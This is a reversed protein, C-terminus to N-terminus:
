NRCFHSKILFSILPDLKDGDNVIFEGLSARPGSFAPATKTVGLGPQYIVSKDARNKRARNLDAYNLVSEIDHLASKEPEFDAFKDYQNFPENTILLPTDEEEEFDSFRFKKNPLYVNSDIQPDEYEIGEYKPRKSFQDEFENLRKVFESTMITKQRKSQKPISGTTERDRIVVGNEPIYNIDEILPYDEIAKIAQDALRQAKKERYKPVKINKSKAHSLRNPHIVDDHITEEPLDMDEYIRQKIDEIDRLAQTSYNEALKQRYKLAKNKLYLVPNEKYTIDFDKTYRVPVKQIKPM